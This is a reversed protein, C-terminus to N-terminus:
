RVYIRLRAKTYSGANSSFTWDPKDGENNGIGLDAGDGNVWHNIAFITQREGHNHVQMSGYGDLPAAREDGFDYESSSAGPVNGSNRQGYNNPWFEINGTTMGTGSKISTVNSFVDLNSVRQQFGEGLSTTPVAIKNIDKTFADMAVFVKKDESGESSLEVLYGIREFKNIESSNNVDFKIERGLRKLDLDYVLRYEKEIALTSVFDPVEGGRFAGVPLGSGGMLNPEALKHWAFRFATPSGVKDSTLIVRNGDLKADAPQFGYSDPGILEFNSPAKGDRTKLGGATDKFTIVLQDGEVNMSSMTPSAATLEERGYDNKLAWLALREGVDQKNPPHIDNLTAIDNIVVMGVNAIDQVKAQAEWFRALITPDENGYFYPAIQVFYFPFDGQKWLQRWGNILAKKKEFYLMGENHNSEGQYWIAGRIPYGVIAHIMGNYLMTPDQHSQWPQLANPFAPSPNVRETKDMSQKAAGLWQQTADIHKQLLGNHQETGPTKTLVSNYIDSLAGIQQFGNPPTWPEVRTGGWSSNILGIPVNLEKHLRRAMFYGCATFDAVTDSSCLEWPAKVDDLPDNSPRHAFKIHRILPYDAAAIEEASNNSARVNWEMNSQGSCLWVEGVLIDTLEIKNTGSVILTKPSESASLEPLEVAWKGSDDAKTKAENGAITVSVSEGADAWGWVRVPKKQQIVMHDGFFGPLRVEAAAQTAMGFVGAISLCLRLSKSRLKM